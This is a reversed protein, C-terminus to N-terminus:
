CSKVPHPSKAGFCGVLRFALSVEAGPCNVVSDVDQLHKITAQHPAVIFIKSVAKKFGRSNTRGKLMRAFYERLCKWLVIQKGLVLLHLARCM